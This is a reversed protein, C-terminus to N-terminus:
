GIPGNVLCNQCNGINCFKKYLHILGQQRMASKVTSVYEEDNRFLRDKMYRTIKNEQLMKYNSYVSIVTKQLNVDGSQKAYAFVSPLIVNVIIDATRNEGILYQNGRYQKHNFDYYRTWYGSARPMLIEQYEGKDFAKLFLSLIPSKSLIYSIGAIRRAPHNEPRQRFFNWQERHMLNDNFLPSFKKWLKSIHSSLKMTDEDLNGQSPLLGATGFLIAQIEEVSRGTLFKIPAKHALELFQEKNKSYGLAEMIREYILQEIDDGDFMSARSIFREMGANDLIEPRIGKSQSPCLDTKNKGLEIRKWLKGISADLYDYLVLTPILEGNQKKTLLKISDDWMVVHLITNNYSPDTDHHHVQWHSGKVHIEVDGKYVQNDVKLEANHFDAGEEDNWQGRYNVLIRRGDKARLREKVFYGADWIHSVFKEEISNNQFTRM